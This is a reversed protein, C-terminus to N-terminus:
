SCDSNHKQEEDALCSDPRELVGLLGPECTSLDELENLDLKQEIVYLVEKVNRKPNIPERVGIVKTDIGLNILNKLKDRSLGFENDKGSFLGIFDSISHEYGLDLRFEIKEILKPLLNEKELDSKSSIV